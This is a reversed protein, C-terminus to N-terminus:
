LRLDAAESGNANLPNHDRLGRPSRGIRGRRTARRYRQRWPFTSLRITPNRCVGASSALAALIPFWDKWHGRFLATLRACAPIRLMAMPVVIRSGTSRSLAEVLEAIRHRM